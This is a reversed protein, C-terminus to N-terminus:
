LVLLKRALLLLLVIGYVLQLVVVLVQNHQTHARALLLRQRRRIGICDVMKNGSSLLLFVYHWRTVDVLECHVTQEADELIRRQDLLM